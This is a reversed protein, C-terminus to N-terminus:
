LFLQLAPSLVFFRTLGDPRSQRFWVPFGFTVSTRLRESINYGGKINLNVTLGESGQIEARPLTFIENELGQKDNAIHYISLVSAAVDMKKYKFRREVRAIVDPQREFWVTTIFGKYDERGDNIFTNRNKQTIPHQYGVAFGWKQTKVGAGLIIDDTGLSTQYPMPLSGIQTGFTINSNNTALRAGVVATVSINENVKFGHSYNITIDGMGNSNGLRGTAFVVPLKIQFVGQKLISINLEMQPSIIHTLQEGLGYNASFVINTKYTNSDNTHSALSGATCIGADSCGQAQTNHLAVGFLLLLFVFRM